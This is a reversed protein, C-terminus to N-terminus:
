ELKEAVIERIRVKSQPTTKVYVTGAEPFFSMDVTQILIGDIAICLLGQANWISVAHFTKSLNMGHLQIPGVSEEQLPSGPPTAKQYFVAISAARLTIRVIGDLDALYALDVYGSEIRIIATFCYQELSAPTGNEEYRLTAAGLNTLYFQGYEEERTWNGTSAWGFQGYYDLGHSQFDAYTLIRGTHYIYEILLIIDDLNSLDLQTHNVDNPATSVPGSAFGYVLEWGNPLPSEPWNQEDNKFAVDLATGCSVGGTTLREICMDDLDVYGSAQLASYSVKLGLKTVQFGDIFSLDAQTLNDVLVRLRGKYNTQGVPESLWEIVLAYWDDGTGRDEIEPTMMETDIVVLNRHLNVIHASRPDGGHSLLVQLFAVHGKYRAKFSLRYCELSDAAAVGLEQSNISAKGRLIGNDWDAITTGLANKALWSTNKDPLIKLHWDDTVPLGRWGDVSSSSLGGGRPQTVVQVSRPQNASFLTIGVPNVTDDVTQTFIQIERIRRNRENHRFQRDNTRFAILRMDRAQENISPNHLHYFADPYDRKLSFTRVSSLEKPARAKEIEELETSHFATFYVTFRIDMITRYDFHNSDKPMSLVWNTDVGIGEFANLEKDVTSPQFYVEDIAKRYSSLLFTESPHTIRKVPWPYAPDETETRVRSTGANSISAHIGESGILGVVSVEINKIRAQYAGPHDYEFMDLSTRFHVTGTKAFTFFSVPYEDALSVVQKLPNRKKLSMMRHQDLIELDRILNDAALLAQKDTSIYDFRIINIEDSREFELAREAMFAMANAYHIFTEYNDRIARAMYNWLEKNFFKFAHFECVARSYQGKLMAIDHQRDAILLQNQAVDIGLAAIEKDAEVATIDRDLRMRAMEFSRHGQYFSVPGQVGGVAAAAVIGAPGGGSGQLGGSVAGTVTEAGASIILAAYDGETGTEELESKLHEAQEALKDRSMVAQTLQTRAVGMRTEEIEVMLADSKVSLEAAMQSIAEEESKSKYYIFDKELALATNALNKAASILYDYRYISLYDDTFGLINMGRRIMGIRLCATEKQRLIEPNEWTCFYVPLPKFPKLEAAPPLDGSWPEFPKLEVVPPLNASRVTSKNSKVSGLRFGRPGTRNAVPAKVNGIKGIKMAGPLQTLQYRLNDDHKGDAKNQLIDKITGLKDRCDQKSIVLGKTQVLLDLWAPIKDTPVMEVILELVEQELGYINNDCYGPSEYLDVLLESYLALAQDKAEPANKRFLADARALLNRGIRMQVFSIEINPNLYTYVKTNDESLISRYFRDSEEFNGLSSYCDGIAVPLVFYYYHIFAFGLSKLLDRISDFNPRNGETTEDLIHLNEKFVDYLQLHLKLNNELFGLSRIVTRSNLHQETLRQAIYNEPCEGNENKPFCTKDIFHMITQIEFEIDQPQRVEDHFTRPNMFHYVIDWDVGSDSAARFAYDLFFDRIANEAEQYCHLALGLEDAYYHMHGATLREDAELAKDILNFADTALSDNEVASDKLYIERIRSRWDGVDGCLVSQKCEYFNEPFYRRDMVMEWEHRYLFRFRARIQDIWLDFFGKTYIRLEFRTGDCIFELPVDYYHYATPLDRRAVSREAIKSDALPAFVELEAITAEPLPREESKMRVIFEGKAPPIAELYKRWRQPGSIVLGEDDKGVLWASNDDTDQDSIMRGVDHQVAVDGALQLLRPMEPLPGPGVTIEGESDIFGQKSEWGLTFYDIWLAANGFTNIRVLLEYGNKVENIRGSLSFSHYTDTTPFNSQDSLCKLELYDLEEENESNRDKYVISLRCLDAGRRNNNTKLRFSVHVEVWANDPWITAGPRANTYHTWLDIYPGHCALGPEEDVLNVIAKDGSAHDESAQNVVTAMHHTMWAQDEAEFQYCHIEPHDRLYAQLTRICESVRTTVFDPEALVDIYYKNWVIAAARRYADDTADPAIGYKTRILERIADLNQLEVPMKPGPSGSAMNGRLVEICINRYSIENSAKERSITFNQIFEAELDEATRLIHDFSTLFQILYQLYDWDTHPTKIDCYNETARDIWNRVTSDDKLTNPHIKYKKKAAINLNELLVEPSLSALHPPSTIKGIDVLARASELDIGGTKALLAVSRARSLENTAIGITASMASVELSSLAEITTIGENALAKRHKPSLGVGAPLQHPIKSAAIGRKKDAKQKTHNTQKNKQSKKGM